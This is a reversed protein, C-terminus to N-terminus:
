NFRWESVDSVGANEDPVITSFESDWYAKLADKGENNYIELYRIATIDKETRNDTNHFIGKMIDDMQYYNWEELGGVRNKYAEVVSDFAGSVLLKDEASYEGDFAGDYYDKVM